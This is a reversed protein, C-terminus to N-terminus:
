SGSQQRPSVADPAKKLDAWYHYGESDKAVVRLIREPSESDTYLELMMEGGKDSKASLKGGALVLKGKGAFVGIMRYSAFEYTGAEGIVLTVWDDDRTRPNRVLVGQWKGAVSKIDSVKAPQLQPTEKPAFFSCAAVVHMVVIVVITEFRIKMM